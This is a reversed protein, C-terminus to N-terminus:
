DEQLTKHAVAIAKGEIEKCGKVDWYLPCAGECLDFDACKECSDPALAKSRIKEASSSKWIEIFPQDFMSGQPAFFSSCPIIRGKPDVSLLGDCAACGKNGLNHAIPNFLCYPTPSYWMFRVGAKRAMDKVKLVTEGIKSYDLMLDPKNEKIWHSPIIMNMSFRELKLEQALDIMQGACELNESTLTTNHHVSIDEAILAKIGAIASDFAGKSAVLKDHIQANPGEISIQASSLGAKKMATVLEPTILTGNSILNVRLGEKVAIQILEPLDKRMTPEGGTFSVSPVMAEHRIKKLIIAFQETSLEDEASERNEGAYCFTCRLNCRYTLAVESLVPLKHYPRQYPVHEVEPRGRGEGLCGRFMAVIGTFFEFLDKCVHAPLTRGETLQELTAGALLKKMIKIGMGNLKYSQNPLLIMLNDYERVFVHPRIQNIFEDVWDLPYRIQSSESM